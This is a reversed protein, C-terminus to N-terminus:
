HRHHQRPRRQIAWQPNHVALLLPEIPRPRCEQLHQLLIRRRRHRPNVLPQKPATPNTEYNARNPRAQATPNTGYNPRYVGRHTISGTPENRLESRHTHRTTNPKNRLKGSHTDAPASQTQKTIQERHPHRTPLAPSPHNEYEARDSRRLIFSNITPPFGMADETYSEFHVVGQWECAAFRKCGM